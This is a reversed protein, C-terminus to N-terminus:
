DAPPSIYVENRVIERLDFFAEARVEPWPRGFVEESAEELVQTYNGYANWDALEVILM